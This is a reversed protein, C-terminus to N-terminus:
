KTYNNQFGLNLIYQKINNLIITYLVWRGRNLDQSGRQYIYLKYLFQVMNPSVQKPMKLFFFFELNM